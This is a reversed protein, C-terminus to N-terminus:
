PLLMAIQYHVDCPPWVRLLLLYQREQPRVAEGQPKDGTCVGEGGVGVSVFHEVKCSEDLFHTLVTFGQGRGQKMENM